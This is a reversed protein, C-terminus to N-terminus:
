IKFVLVFLTSVIDKILLNWFHFGHGIKFCDMIKQYGAAKYTSRTLVTTKLRM